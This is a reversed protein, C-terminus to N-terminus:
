RRRNSFYKKAILGAGIAGLATHMPTAGPFSTKVVEHAKSAVNGINGVIGKVSDTVTPISSAVTGSPTNVTPNPTSVQSISPKPVVSDSGGTKIPNYSKPVISDAGGSKTATYPKVYESRAQRSKEALDATRSSMESSSARSPIEKKPEFKVFNSDWIVNTFNPSFTPSSNSTPRDLTSNLTSISAKQFPINKNQVKNPINNIVNRPRNTAFRKALGAAIDAANSNVPQNLEYLITQNINM